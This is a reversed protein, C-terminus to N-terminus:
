RRRNKINQVNVLRAIGAADVAFSAQSLSLAVASALANAVAGINFDGRMGSTQSAINVMMREMMSQTAKNTFVKSGRPLQILEPGQEDVETFGGRWFGTGAANRGRLAGTLSNLSPDPGGRVVTDIIYNLYINGRPISDVRTKLNAAEQAAAYMNSDIHIPKYGPVNIIANRMNDFEIRGGIAALETQDMAAVTQYLAPPAQSGFIDILKLAEIVTAQQGIVMKDYSTKGAANAIALEGAAKVQNVMALSLEDAAFKTDLSGKGTKKITEALAEQKEKVDKITNNYAVQKSVGGVLVEFFDLLRETHTKTARAADEQADKERLTAVALREQAGKALESTPGMDAVAKNYQLTAAAAQDQSTRVRDATREAIDRQEDWKKNREAIKKQIDDEVASVIGGFVAFAAGIIPLSNGVISLSKGATSTIKSLRSQAESAKDVKDSADKTARGFLGMTSTASGVNESVKGVASKVAAGARGIGSMAASLLKYAAAAALITGVGSGLFKMVPGLVDAVASLIGLLVTLGGAMAPLAGNAFQEVLKSAKELVSNFPGGIRAWVETFVAVLNGVFGLLIQVTRGFNSMAREAQTVRTANDVLDSIGTGVQGLLGTWGRMFGEGRQLAVSMGPLTNVVMGMLSSAFSKLHPAAESFMGALIPKTAAWTVRAEGMIDVLASRMPVAIEKSGDAVEKKLDLWANKVEASGKTAAIGWAAFAAVPLLMAAGAAAASVAALGPLLGLQIMVPNLLARAFRNGSRDATKETNAAIEDIKKAVQKQDIDADIKVKPKKGSTARNIDRDVQDQDISVDIKARFKKREFARADREAKDLGQNFPTRDLSLTTEIDGADFAM